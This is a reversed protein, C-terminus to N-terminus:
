GWPAVPRLEVILGDSWHYHSDFSARVRAALEPEHEPSVVRARAPRSLGGLDLKVNPQNRLNQVWHAREDLESILYFSGDLERYWMEVQHPQGTRWGITTLYLFRCDRGPMSAPRRDDAM